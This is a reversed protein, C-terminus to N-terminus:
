NLEYKFSKVSGGKSADAVVLSCDSLVWFV